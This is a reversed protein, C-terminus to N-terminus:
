PGIRRAFVDSSGASPGALAGSTTGAVVLDGSALDARTDGVVAVRGGPGTAVANVGDDFVAGFQRTWVM